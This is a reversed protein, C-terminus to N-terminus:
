PIRVQLQDQLAGKLDGLRESAPTHRKSPDGVWTTFVKFSVNETIYQRGIMIDLDTQSRLSGLMGRPTVFFKSQIM